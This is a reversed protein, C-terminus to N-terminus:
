VLPVVPAGFPAIVVCALKRAFVYGVSGLGGFGGADFRFRQPGTGLGAAPQIHEDQKFNWLAGAGVYLGDIPQAMAYAPLLLAATAALSTRLRM